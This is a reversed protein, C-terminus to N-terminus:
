SNSTTSVKLPSNIESADNVSSSNTLTPYAAISITSQTLIPHVYNNNSNNM